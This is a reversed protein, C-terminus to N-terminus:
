PGTGRALEIPPNETETKVLKEARVSRMGDVERKDGQHIGPHLPVVFGKVAKGAPPM